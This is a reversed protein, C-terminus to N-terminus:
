KRKIKCFRLYLLHTPLFVGIPLAVLMVTLWVWSPMWYWNRELPVFVWNINELPPIILYTVIIIIWYMILGYKFAQRNYGWAYLYWIWIPPLLVHFLSLNRLWLPVSADFMYDGIGFISHGTLLQYFFGINWMLELPLLIVCVISMLLSTHFWLAIATVIFSIDSLWLLNQVGYHVVYIPVLIIAFLTFAAKIAAFIYYRNFKM